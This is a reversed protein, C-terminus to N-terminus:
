ATSSRRQRWERWFPWVFCAVSVLLLLLSIPRTVLPWLSGDSIMLASRLKGEALPALVFGIVFPALPFRAIEMALGVLGFLLMIWVDAIQGDMAFAGIACFVVILPFLIARPILMLRAFILTGLTMTAFMALHAVLHTAMITNVIEPNTTFLLPGPRLNHMVLAALLIADAIGGPIGLALLPILTGGTTANNASEAAVIAEESGKGFEEPTKSMNKAVTYAVISSVTAGVGPHIGIWLGILSSRLMNWGHTAYDKLSILVGTMNARIHDNGQNVHMTDAVLQSMAFLGIVVPLLQFGNTMADFGFTLRVLGSTQDVGPLALLVGLLASIMGKLFSGRSLSSVLVLATLVLSFNEWPGLQVAFDAIPRTLTVLAIWGVIGGVISAANGLGLARGPFGRKALPYGDLTTMIASPEGPIRMLTATVLGGSVGGVFMSILLIIADVPAMAYTFPLTLAMLMGATIGPMVGVAIGVIVGIMMLLFPAPEMLHLFSDLLTM